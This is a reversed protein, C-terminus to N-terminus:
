GQRHLGAATFQEILDDAQPFRGTQLKSWVQEDDLYIEFAGSVAYRSVIQPLLLYLFIGIQISHEQITYYFAPLIPRNQNDTRVMGPIWRLVTDGGVVVWVIGLLQLLSMLNMFLEVVPPLPYTGGSVKGQL